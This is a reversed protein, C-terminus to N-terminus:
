AQIYSQVLEKTKNRNLVDCKCLIHEVTSSFGQVGYKQLLAALCKLAGTENQLSIACVDMIGLPPTDSECWLQTDLTRLTQLNYVKYLKLALMLHHVNDDELCQWLHSQQASSFGMGSM